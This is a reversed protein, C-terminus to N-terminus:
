ESVIQIFVSNDIIESKIKIPYPESNKFKFDIDGYSTAADKGKPVYSVPRSHIHREIIELGADEVANYLTSSVQCVGGGYGYAKKGNIFIQARKYGNKKTTPGIAQNYSFTEGPKVVAENISKAALAINTNREKSNKSFETSYEGIVFGPVYQDIDLVSPTNLAPASRTKKEPILNQAPQPDSLSPHEAEAAAEASPASNYRTAALAAGFGSGAAIIAAAAFIFSKRQM